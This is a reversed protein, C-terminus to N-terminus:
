NNEIGRGVGLSGGRTRHRTLTPIWKEIRITNSNDVIKVLIIIRVDGRSEEFWLRAKSRLNAWMQYKGAEIVLTPFSNEGRFSNPKRKSDGELRWLPNGSESYTASGM